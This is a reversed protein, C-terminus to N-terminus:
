RESLIRESLIREVDDRMISLQRRILDAAGECQKNKLPPCSYKNLYEIWNAIEQVEAAVSRVVAPAAPSEDGFGDDPPPVVPAVPAPAADFGDDDAPAAPKPFPLPTFGPSERNPPIIRSAPAVYPPLEANPPLPRRQAAIALASEKALRAEEIRALRQTEALQSAERKRAAELEAALRKAEREAAQSRIIGLVLEDWASDEMEAIQYLAPNVGLERLKASRHTVRALRRGEEERKAFEEQQKLYAEIPAIANVIKDAQEDVARRYNQSDLKLKDRKKDVEIRIRRLALRSESALKMEKVQDSSTVVITRAKAALEAATEDWTKFTDRLVTATEAPLLALATIIETPPMNTSIVVGL